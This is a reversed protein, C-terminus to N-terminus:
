RCSGVPWSCSAVGHFRRILLVFSSVSASLLVSSARIRLELRGLASPDTLILVAFCRVTSLLPLLALLAARPPLVLPESATPLAPSPSVDFVADIPLDWWRFASQVVHARAYLEGGLSCDRM